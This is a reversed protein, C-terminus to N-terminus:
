RPRRADLRQWAADPLTKTHREVIRGDGNVLFLAPLEAPHGFGDRHGAEHRWLMFGGEAAPAVRDFVRAAEVVDDRSADTAVLVLDFHPAGAHRGRLDMMLERSAECAVSWLVVLAWRGQRPMLRCRRGDVDRGDLRALTAAGNLGLGFLLAPLPGRWTSPMTMAPLRAAM